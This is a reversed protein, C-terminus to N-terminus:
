YKKENWDCKDCVHIKGIDSPTVIIYTTLRAGHVWCTSNRWECSFAVFIIIENEELLSREEQTSFLYWEQTLYVDGVNVIQM